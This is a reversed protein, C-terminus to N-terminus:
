ARLGYPLDLAGARPDALEPDAYRSFHVVLNAALDVSLQVWRPTALPEAKWDLPSMSAMAMFALMMSLSM